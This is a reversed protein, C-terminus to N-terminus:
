PAGDQLLESRKCLYLSVGTEDCISIHAHVCMWVCVCARVCMYVCWPTRVHVCGCVCMCVRVCVCACVCVCASCICANSTISQYFSLDTHLPSSIPKWNQSWLLSHLRIGSLSLFPTGSCLGLVNSNGVCHCFRCLIKCWRKPNPIASQGPQRERGTKLHNHSKQFKCRDLLMKGKMNIAILGLHFHFNAQFCQYPLKMIM